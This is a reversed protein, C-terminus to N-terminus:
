DTAPAIRLSTEAHLLGGLPGSDFDVVVRYM